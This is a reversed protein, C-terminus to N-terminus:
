NKLLESFIREYSQIMKSISFKEDVLKQGNKGMEKRKVEDSLLTSLASALADSNKADVLIGTKGNIVIEPISSIRSAVCPKQAAMAEVLVIGFGEWLSPLVLIDITRMINPIDKRFGTFIVKDSLNLKRFEAVCYEKLEGEGVILLCTDKYVEAIKTYAEVLYEIGKQPSLRGVFGIIKSEQNIKLEERLNKTNSESYDSTNIGNYVVDIKNENLWDINKLLSNKTALSNTIIKETLKNYTIKNRFNNKIPLDIGRRNILKGRSSIKAAIGCLRTEKEMNTLIIDVNKKIFLRVLKFITFPNLEGGFNLVIVNIGNEQAIKKIEADDRCLLSVDHGNKQLESLTRLMWVEGGGM